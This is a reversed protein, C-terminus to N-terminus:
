IKKQKKNNNELNIVSYLKQAFLLFANIINKNAISIM